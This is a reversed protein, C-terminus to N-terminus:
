IHGVQLNCQVSEQSEKLHIKGDKSMFIADLNPSLRTAPTELGM